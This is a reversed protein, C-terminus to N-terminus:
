HKHAGGHDPAPGGYGINEVALEVDVRGTKEFILTAPVRMGEALPQKLDILMLHYGGSKLSTEGPPIEISKVERMKAIGNENVSEHIEVKGAGSTEVGVLRDSKTGTNTVKFYGAGVTAGPATERAWPHGIELGGAKYSHAYAPAALALIACASLFVRLRTMAFSM